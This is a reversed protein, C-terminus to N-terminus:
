REGDPGELYADRIRWEPPVTWDFVDTGSPVGEVTLPVHRGLIELSERVGPGTISRCIPFLEDLLGAVLEHDTREDEM